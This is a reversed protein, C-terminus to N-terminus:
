ANSRMWSRLTGFIGPARSASVETRWESRLSRGEAAQQAFHVQENGEGAQELGEIFYSLYFQMEGLLAIQGDDLPLRTACVKLACRIEERSHPLVAADIVETSRILGLGICKGYSGVIQCQAALNEDEGVYAGTIAAVLGRIQHAKIIDDAAEALSQEKGDRVRIQDFGIRM